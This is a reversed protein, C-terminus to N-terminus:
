TQVPRYKSCGAAPQYGRAIIDAVLAEVDDGVLDEGEFHVVLRGQGGSCEGRDVSEAAYTDSSALQIRSHRVETAGDDTYSLTLCNDPDANCARVVFQAARSSGLLQTAYRDKHPLALVAWGPLNDPPGAFFRGGLARAVAQHDAEWETGAGAGTDAPGDVTDWEDDDDDGFLGGAAELADDSMMTGGFKERDQRFSLGDLSNQQVARRPVHSVAQVEAGGAAAAAAEASAEEMRAAMLDAVAYLDEATRKPLVMLKRLDTHQGFQQHLMKFLHARVASLQVPYRKAFECYEVAQLWPPRMTPRPQPAPAAGGHPAPPAPAAGGPPPELPAFLAPNELLTEASMVADANTEALCRGVDALSLINGNAIVPIRVADKVAKIAAWDALGDRKCERTRGHVGLIQCGAEELAQAYAVTEEYTERVRIKCAVPVSLGAHLTRVIELVRELDDALFAGYNGRRAIQQPCGLNLDVADCRDQVLLAAALLTKPDNGCFQVFLPRDEGCTTFMEERYRKDEVFLRAHFMPTYALDAGYKRCLMRFPLESQDVMPAVVYRPRGMKAWLEPGTLKQRAAAAAAAAMGPTPLPLTPQSAALPACALAARAAHAGAALLSCPAKLKTLFDLVCNNCYLLIVTIITYQVSIAM